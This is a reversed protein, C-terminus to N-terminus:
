HHPSWPPWVENRLEQSLDTAQDLPFGPVLTTTLVHPSSLEDIVDPVYFFPHDKLLERGFLRLNFLCRFGVRLYTIFIDVALPTDQHVSSCPWCQVLPFKGLSFLSLVSIRITPVFVCFYIIELINFYRATFSFFTTFFRHTRITQTKVFTANKWNIFMTLTYSGEEGQFIGFHQAHKKWSQM